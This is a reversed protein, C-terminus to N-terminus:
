RIILNCDSSGPNCDTKSASLGNSDEVRAGTPLNNRDGFNPYFSVAWTPTPGTLLPVVRLKCITNSIFPDCGIPFSLGINPINLWGSGTNLCHTGSCVSGAQPTYALSFESGFNVFYKSISGASGPTANLTINISNRWNSGQQATQRGSTQETGSFTTPGGQVIRLSQITPPTQILASVTVSKTPCSAVAGQNDTVTLDITYNGSASSSWSFSSLTGSLPNGGSTHWLYSAIFGDPDSAQANYTGTQNVVLSDPGNILTCSPAQNPPPATINFPFTATNNGLNSEAIKPDCIIGYQEGVKCYNAVVLAQHSGSSLPCRTKDWIWSRQDPYSSTFVAGGCERGDINFATITSGASGQSINEVRTTFSISDQPNFSSTPNVFSSILDPAKVTFVTTGLKDTIPSQDVVNFIDAVIGILYTGAQATWANPWNLTVSGGPEFAPTPLYTLALITGLSDAVLMLTVTPPTITGCSLNTSAVVASFSMIDGSVPSTPSFTPPAVGISPCAAFVPPTFLSFFLFFLLTLFIIKFKKIM